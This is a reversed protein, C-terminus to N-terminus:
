SKVRTGIPCQENGELYPRALPRGNVFHREATHIPESRGPLAEAASPMVLRKRFSVMSVGSPEFELKAARSIHGIEGFPSRRAHV